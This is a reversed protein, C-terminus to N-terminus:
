TVRPSPSPTVPEIWYASTSGEQPGDRGLCEPVPYAPPTFAVEDGDGMVVAPRYRGPDPGCYSTWTVRVRADAGPRLPPPYSMDSEQGVSLRLRRGDEAYVRLGPKAFMDCFDGSVNRLVVEFDHVAVGPYQTRTRVTASQVQWDARGCRREVWRALMSEPREGRACARLAGADLPLDTREGAVTVGLAMPADPRCLDPSWVVTMLRPTPSLYAPGDEGRLSSRLPVDEGGVRLALAPARPIACAGGPATLAVLAKGEGPPDLRGSVEVTGDACPPPPVFPTATVTPTVTPSASAVPNGPADGPGVVWAVGALLAIVSAAAAYPVWSRPRRVPLAPVDGTVPRAAAWRAGYDRLREDMREDSM